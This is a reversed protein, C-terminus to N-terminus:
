QAWAPTKYWEESSAPMSRGYGGETLSSQTTPYQRGSSSQNVINDLWNGQGGQQNQSGLYQGLASAFDGGATSPTPMSPQAVAMGGYKDWVGPVQMGSLARINTLWDQRGKEGFAAEQIGMETSIDGLQGAETAGMRMLMSEGAPSESVGRRAASAKVKGALGPGGEPGGWYYQSVRKQAREWIDGWDPAIAGYGPQEGFEQLKEWWEGRAGAAEPYEPARLFTAPKQREAREAQQERAYKEATEESAKSSERSSMYSGYAGIAAAGIAIGSM